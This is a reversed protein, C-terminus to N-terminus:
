ELQARDTEKLQGSPAAGAKQLARVYLIIAWRDEPVIQSGYSQMNRIGNTVTNFIEGAAMTRIREEHLNTPPVWGQQLSTAREHVMGNGEGSVGHCPTCYTEFKVKGREMTDEDAAIGAPLTLAWDGSLTKGKHLHDDVNLQGLAVTGEPPTRM